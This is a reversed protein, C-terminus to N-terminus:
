SAGGMLQIEYKVRLLHKFIVRAKEDTYLHQWEKISDRYKILEDLSMKRLDKDQKLHLEQLIRKYRIIARFSKDMDIRRSFRLPCILKEM